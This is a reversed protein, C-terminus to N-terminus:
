KAENPTIFEITPDVLGKEAAFRKTRAILTAKSSAGHSGGMLKRGKQDFIQYVFSETTRAYPGLLGTPPPFPGHIKIHGSM